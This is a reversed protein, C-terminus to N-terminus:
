PASPAFVRLRHGDPDSAVFTFGFDMAVPSQLIPLGRTTWDDFMRRVAPEGDVAFALEGGGGAVTTVPAVTHRAWLGLMTGSDLAFMAFTPSAEVPTRGLLESYFTASRAPSDVYLIIFNPDTMAPAKTKQRIVEFGAARVDPAKATRTGQHYFGVRGLDTLLRQAELATGDKLLGVARDGAGNM